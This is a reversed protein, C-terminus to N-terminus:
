RELPYKGVKKDALITIKNLIKKLIAKESDITKEDLSPSPYFPEGFIVVSRAFPLPLLYRDWSNLHISPYSSFTIPIICTNIKKALYIAGPKVEHIPGRPGDIAFAFDYGARM